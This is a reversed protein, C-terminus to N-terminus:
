LVDFKSLSVLPQSEESSQGDGENAEGQENAFMSTDTFNRKQLMSKAISEAPM